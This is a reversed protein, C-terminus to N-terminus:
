FLTITPWSCNFYFIYIFIIRYHTTTDMYQLFQIVNNMRSYINVCYGLM